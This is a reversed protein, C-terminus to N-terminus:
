TRLRDRAAGIAIWVGIGGSALGLALTLDTVVTAATSGSQDANALETGLRAVDQREATVDGRAVAAVLDARVPGLRDALDRRGDARDASPVLFAGIILMIATLLGAVALLVAPTTYRRVSEPTTLPRLELWDGLSAAMAAWTPESVLAAAADGASDTRVRLPVEPGNGDTRAARGVVITGEALATGSRVVVDGDTVTKSRDLLLDTKLFATM